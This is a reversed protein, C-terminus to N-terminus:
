ASRMWDRGFFFFGGAALCCVFSLTLLVLNLNGAPARGVFHLWYTFALVGLGIILSLIALPLDAAYKKPLQDRRLYLLYASVFPILLVYSHLHSGAVYSILVLLPRVYVVLLVIAFCVGCSFRWMKRHNPRTSRSVNGTQTPVVTKRVAAADPSAPMEM